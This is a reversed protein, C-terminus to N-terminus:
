DGIPLHAVQIMEQPRVRSVLEGRGPVLTQLRSRGTIFGEDRDGSMLLIDSSLDKLRAILPDFMARGLGGSRRALVIHLGIDRAHSALEVIPLMPNGTSTVVMDYDDVVVYVEPQGDLWTRDRLQQVTVDEPPMRNKLYAALETMMSAARDPSSAYGALHDGDIIGLMTRRYDVFVIRVQEPTAGAVLGTVITRLLNTKGHEVDAFAMFHPQATFDLVVPALELEGVGIAVQNPALTLGAAAVARQVSAYDIETSLKRVAMASRGPYAATRKEVSQAVGAPLSEASSVSDLRPLAILMHLEQGTLGRGPRNQPVLAAARRGMDSDMPDGLRLEIRTGMLDRVAPRVEAWRSATVMVHVGYSLGQAVIATIQEELSELETRLVNMGDLVLFM